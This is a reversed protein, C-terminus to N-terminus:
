CSQETKGLRIDPVVWIKQISVKEIQTRPKIFFTVDEPNPRRRDTVLTDVYNKLTQLSKENEAQAAPHKGFLDPHVLFYFPRFYLHGEIM